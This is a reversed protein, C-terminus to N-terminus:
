PGSPAISWDQVNWFIMSPGPRVGRLDDNIAIRDRRQSIVMFPADRGLIEQASILDRKRRARDYSALSDIVFADFARNCYGLYNQGNPSIKDCTYLNALDPEPALSWAYSAIDYKRTAVIGGAAYSSFLMNTPYRFYELGVGLRQYANQLILVRADLGLNGVNGVFKFRLTKDGKHRMKDPGMLWGAEDLLAAAAKLNFPYRAVHPDYAWSLHSIPTWDRRGISHDVKAWMTDLDAGYILAKRVRVDDLPPATMNFDFHGFSTTDYEVVKIAPISPLMPAQYNPARVYADIEHTRLQTLDTNADPIVKFIIRKLKPKGGWWRDFAEMVVQSGRDWRVYKFPGLGVPLANYPTKNIDAVGALLHKPLIAPNGVPTFFVNLFPAYPHKLRFTVTYADPTDVRAIEEWGRRPLINTKPDLIKAVTFAVDASTFPAGDHWVVGHRLHFTISRGDRAIDGNELSPVRLALSPVPRNRDDFVFFYGMTAASIDNVLTQTSLLPNLNDLDEGDAWRLTEPVTWPHLAHGSGATDVRACGCTLVLVALTLLKAGRM